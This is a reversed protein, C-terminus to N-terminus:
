GAPLARGRAGWSQAARPLVQTISRERRHRTLEALDAHLETTRLEVDYVAWGAAAAQEAPVLASTIMLFSPAAERHAICARRRLAAAADLGFSGDVLVVDLDGLEVFRAALELEHAAFVVFGHAALRVLFAPGGPPDGVVFVTPRASRSSGVM